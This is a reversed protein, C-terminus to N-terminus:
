VLILKAHPQIAAIAAAAGCGKGNPISFRLRAGCAASSGRALDANRHPSLVRGASPSLFIWCIRKVLQSILMRNKNPRSRQKLM